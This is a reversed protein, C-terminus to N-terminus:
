LQERIDHFDIGKGAASQRCLVERPQERLLAKGQSIVVLIEM